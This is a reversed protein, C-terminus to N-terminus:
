KVLLSSSSFKPKPFTWSSTLIVVRQKKSSIYIMKDVVADANTKWHKTLVHDKLFVAM